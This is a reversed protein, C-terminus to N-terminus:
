NFLKESKLLDLLEIYNYTTWGQLDKKKFRSYPMNMYIKKYGLDRLYESINHEDGYMGSLIYTESTEGNQIFVKFYENSCGYVDATYGIKTISYNKM